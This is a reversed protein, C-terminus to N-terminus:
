YGARRYSRGLDRFDYPDGDENLSGVRFLNTWGSWQSRDLVAAVKRNFEARVRLKESSLEGQHQALQEAQAQYNKDRPDLKRWSDSVRVSESSLTALQPDAEDFAQLVQLRQEDTAKVAKLAFFVQKEYRAGYDTRGTLFPFSSPTSSCAALSISLAACALLAPNRSARM